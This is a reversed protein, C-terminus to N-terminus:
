NTNTLYHRQARVILEFFSLDLAAAIKILLAISIARQGREINSLDAQRFATDNVLTAQKKELEKRRERIAQGIAKQWRHQEDQLAIRDM